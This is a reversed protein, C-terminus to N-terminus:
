FTFPFRYSTKIKQMWLFSIAPGPHRHQTAAKNRGSNTSENADRREYYKVEKNHFPFIHPLTSKEPNHHNNKAKTNCEFFVAGYLVTYNKVHHRQLSM